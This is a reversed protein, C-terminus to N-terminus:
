FGLLTQLFVAMTQGYENRYEELYDVLSTGVAGLIGIWLFSFLIGIGIEIATVILMAKCYRKRAEPGDGFAWIFLIILSILSFFTTVIITLVWKGVSM